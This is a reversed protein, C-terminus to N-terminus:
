GGQGVVKALWADPDEFGYNKIVVDAEIFIQTSGVGKAEEQQGAARDVEQADRGDEGGTCTVEVGGAATDTVDGIVVKLKGLTYAIFFVDSATPV